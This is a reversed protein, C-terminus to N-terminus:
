SGEHGPEERSDDPLLYGPFVIPVEAETGAAPAAPEISILVVHGADSSACQGADLSRGQARPDLLCVRETTRSWSQRGPGTMALGRKDFWFLATAVLAATLALLGYASIRVPRRLRRARPVPAKRRGRDRTKDSVVHPGRTVQKRMTLHPVEILIPPSGRDSRQRGVPIHAPLLETQSM